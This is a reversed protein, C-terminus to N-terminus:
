RNKINSNGLYSQFSKPFKQNDIIEIEQIHTSDETGPKREAVEMSYEFDYGDTVGVLVECKLFSSLLKASIEDAVNSLREFKSYDISQLIAMLDTVTAGLDPNGMLSPLSYKNMENENLMNSKATHRMAGDSYLLDVFNM